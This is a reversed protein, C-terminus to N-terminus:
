GTASAVRAPQKEIGRLLVLQALRCGVSVSVFKHNERRLTGLAKLYHERNSIQLCLNLRPILDPKWSKCRSLALRAKKPWWILFQATIRDYDTLKWRLNECNLM